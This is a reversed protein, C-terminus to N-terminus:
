FCCIINCAGQDLTLTSQPTSLSLIQEAGTPVRDSTTPQNEISPDEIIRSDCTSKLVESQLRNLVRHFSTSYSDNNDISKLM